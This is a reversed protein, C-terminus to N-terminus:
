WRLAIRAGATGPGVVPAMSLAGITGPGHRFIDQQTKLLADAFTGIGVGWVTMGFTVWGRRGCYEDNGGCSIEAVLGLGAGIAAGIMLGNKLPDSRRQRVVVVDDQSFSRPGAPTQISLRSADLEAIRGTIEAGASDVVTVRNGPGVLFQMDKFSAPVTQASAATASGMVLVVFALTRSTRCM